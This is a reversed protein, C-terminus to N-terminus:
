QPVYPCVTPTGCSVQSFAISVHAPLLLRHGLKKIFNSLRLVTFFGIFFSNERNKKKKKRLLTHNGNSYGSLVSPKKTLLVFEQKSVNQLLECDFMKTEM